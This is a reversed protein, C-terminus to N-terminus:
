EPDHILRICRYCQGPYGRNLILFNHLAHTAIGAILGRVIIFIARPMSVITLPGFAAILWALSYAMAQGLMMVTHWLISASSTWLPLVEFQWWHDGQQIIHLVVWGIAFVGGLIVATMMSIENSYLWVAMPIGRVIAEEGVPHWLNRRVSSRSRQDKRIQNLDAEYSDTQGIIYRLGVIGLRWLTSFGLGSLIGVLVFRIELM